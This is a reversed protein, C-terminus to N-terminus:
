RQWVYTSIYVVNANRAKSPAGYIYSMLLRLTLRIINVYYILFSYCFNTKYSCYINFIGSFEALHTKPANAFKRFAVALKTIDTQRDTPRKTQRDTQKDMRGGVHFLQIEVPCIKIFKSISINKSFRKLFNM